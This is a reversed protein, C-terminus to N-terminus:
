QLETKNVEIDFFFKPDLEIMEFAAELALARINVIEDTTKEKKASLKEKLTTFEPFNEAIYGRTFPKVKVNILEPTGKKSITLSTNDNNVLTLLKNGITCGTVFQVGDIFCSETEVKALIDNYYGYIKKVKFMAFSAAMVGLTLGPCFHNHLQSAKFLLGKLHKKDLLAEIDVRPNAKYRPQYTSNTELLTSNGNKIDIIPTNNIADFGTVYLKNGERKILKVTTTGLLNPRKPSRCAFVGREEGMPTNCILSYDKESKDFYFIVNIFEQEEIKFLGESFEELIEIISVKSKLEEIEPKKVINDFENKVYGIPHITYKAM